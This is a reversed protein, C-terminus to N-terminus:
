DLFIEKVDKLISALHSIPYERNFDRVINSADCELCNLIFGLRAAIALGEKIAMVEAVEVSWKVGFRFAWAM